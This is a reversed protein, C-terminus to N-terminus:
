CAWRLKGIRENTHFRHPFQKIAFMGKAASSLADLSDAAVIGLYLSVVPEVFAYTPSEIERM